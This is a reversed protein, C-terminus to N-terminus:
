SSPLEFVKANENDLLCKGLQVTQAFRPYQQLIWFGPWLFVIAGAGGTQLRQLEAVAAEDDGPPGWYDGNREMFPIAQGGVTLLTRYRDLDVIVFRKHPPLVRMLDHATQYLREREAVHALYLQPHVVALHAPTRDLNAALRSNAAIAIESAYLLVNQAYFWDVQPNAWVQSRICDIARYGHAAFIEAWYEPFQENVHHTGGQGPIAASFLVSDALGVLSKVFAGACSAPLHEGVELSMALDFRRPMKLPLTLDASQFVDPPIQLVSSEVWDGDVGLIQQVGMEKWVALWSGAGCGVDIVSRPELLEQVLPVIVRASSRAGVAHASYFSDSYIPM